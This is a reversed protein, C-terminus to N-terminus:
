SNYGVFRLVLDTSAKTFLLDQTLSLSLSEQRLFVADDAYVRAVLLSAKSGNWLPTTDALCLMM